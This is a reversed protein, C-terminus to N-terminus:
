FKVATAYPEFAATICGTAYISDASDAGECRGSCLQRFIGLKSIFPSSHGCEEVEDPALLV